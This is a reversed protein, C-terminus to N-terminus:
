KARHTLWREAIESAKDQDEATKVLTSITRVALRPDVDLAPETTGIERLTTLWSLLEATAPRKRLGAAPARLEYFLDLALELFKDSGAVQAGLRSAIIEALRHRDPFPINYYVCRRLFADPLDKESNSTIVVVPRMDPDADIQVNGLEPIRFYQHELENLLDNPFDRPAKDVEDILVVSPQKGRHVFGPPLYHAVEHADRSLLIAEGLASYSLYDRTSGASTAFQADRFRALADYIYFLDQARSSSKTEFKLPPGYGLEWALRYALQTKGCGPDGTLLLPQGLLLAINVAHILGEDPLYHEPRLMLRARPTSLAIPPAAGPVADPTNRGFVRFTM